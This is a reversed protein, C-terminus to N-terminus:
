NDMRACWSSWPTAQEAFVEDRVGHRAGIDIVLAGTISGQPV